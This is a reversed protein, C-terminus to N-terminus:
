EPPDQQEWGFAVYQKVWRAFDDLKRDAWPQAQHEIVKNLSCALLLCLAAEIWEGRILFVIMAIASVFSMLLLTGVVQLALRALVRERPWERMASGPWSTTMACPM